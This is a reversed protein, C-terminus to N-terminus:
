NIYKRVPRVSLSEYPERDRCLSLATDGELAFHLLLRKNGCRYYGERQQPTNGLRATYPLFMRNGNPGTLWCGRDTTECRCCQVLERLQEPCPLQWEGGLACTAVDDYSGCIDIDAALTDAVNEPYTDRSLVTGFAYTYGDQEPGAAGINRDAWLTGSPLGLDITGPAKISALQRAQEESDCQRQEAAGHSLWMDYLQEGVLMAAMVVVFGVFWVRLFAKVQRRIPLLAMGVIMFITFLACYVDKMEM